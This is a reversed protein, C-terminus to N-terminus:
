KLAKMSPDVGMGFLAFDYKVPDEADLSRLSFDLEEVARRDNQKRNLLGLARANVGTHVDLPCSLLSPSISNWLGFDVGRDDTRVMWRLYMHIRKAATGKSPNAIHKGSRGPERTGILQDRFRQIAPFLNDEGKRPHFVKELSKHELYIDRLGYILFALDNGNFTRHVFRLDSLEAPSANMTFEYPTNGMIDMMKHANNVITKRQGWAITASLYGAIEIDQSLTFSHPISIPDDEIFNPRNYRDVLEDLIEKINESMM